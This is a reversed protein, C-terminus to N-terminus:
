VDQGLLLPHETQKAPLEDVPKNNGKKRKLNACYANKWGRVTSEKQNPFTHKKEFHCIAAAIGNEAAYMAIKAKCEPSVNEDAGRKRESSVGEADTTRKVGAVRKLETKVAQAIASFVVKELEPKDCQKVTFYSHISMRSTKVCPYGFALSIYLLAGTTNVRLSTM